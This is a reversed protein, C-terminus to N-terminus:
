ETKKRKNVKKEKKEKKEKKVKKEKIPEPQSDPIPHESVPQPGVPEEVEEVVPAVPEEVVPAVPEEVVPAVPEEVVSSKTTGLVEKRLSHCKTKLQQLTKRVQTRNKRNPAEDLLKMESTLREIIVNLNEM